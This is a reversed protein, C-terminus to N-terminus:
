GKIPKRKLVEVPIGARKAKNYMNKTGKSTELSDTFCWVQQPNLLLMAANRRAGAHRGQEWFAECVATQIGLRRAEQGAIQDAGRCGGHIVIGGHHMGQAICMRIFERDPYDRSGCILVVSPKQHFDHTHSASAM